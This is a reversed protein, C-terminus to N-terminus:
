ERDRRIRDRDRDRDRDQGYYDHGRTVSIEDFTQARICFELFHTKCGSCDSLFWLLYVHRNKSNEELCFALLFEFNKDIDSKLAIKVFVRTENFKRASSSTKLCKREEKQKARIRAPLCM